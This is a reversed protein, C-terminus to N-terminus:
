PLVARRLRRWHTVEQAVGAADAKMFRRYARGTAPFFMLRRGLTGGLDRGTLTLGARAVYDLAFAVNDAGIDQGAEIVRAGGFLKVELRDRVAGAATVADLLTDMAAAGYRCPSHAGEAGAPAGPLLFHNMGGVRAVPDHVCAAVCSGLVTTVMEDPRRCVRWEGLTIPIANAKFDPDFYGTGSPRPHAGRRDSRDAM